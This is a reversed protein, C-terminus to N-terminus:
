YHYDTTKVPKKASFAACFKTDMQQVSLAPERFEQTGQCGLQSVSSWNTKLNPNM